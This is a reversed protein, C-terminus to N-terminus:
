ICYEKDEMWQSLGKLITEIVGPGQQLLVSCLHTVNAGALLMKSVQEVGHIGGTAALSLDVRGCLRAIWHMRLLAEYPESLHLTPNIELTDLDLDPQYFRNFLAVGDDNPM